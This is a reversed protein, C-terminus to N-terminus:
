KKELKKGCETCFVVSDSAKAAGCSECFKTTEVTSKNFHENLQVAEVPNIQALKKAQLLSNLHEYSFVKRRVKRKYFYVSLVLLLMVLLGLLGVLSTTIAVITTPGATFTGVSSTSINIPIVSNLQTLNSAMSSDSTVNAVIVAQGSTANIPVDM